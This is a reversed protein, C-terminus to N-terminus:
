LKVEINTDLGTEALKADLQKLHQAVLERIVANYGLKPYYSSLKASHGAYLRVQRKELERENAM